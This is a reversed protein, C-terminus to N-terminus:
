YVVILRENEINIEVASRDTWKRRGRAVTFSALFFVIIVVYDGYIPLACTQVGTM